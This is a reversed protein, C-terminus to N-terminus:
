RASPPRPGRVLLRIGLQGREVALEPGVDHELYLVAGDIKLRALREVRQEAGHGSVGSNKSTISAWSYRPNAVCRTNWAGSM